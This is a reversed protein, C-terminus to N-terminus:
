AKGSAPELHQKTRDYYIDGLANVEAAASVDGKQHKKLQYVYTWM